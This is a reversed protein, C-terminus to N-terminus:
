TKPVNQLRHTRTPCKSGLLSDSFKPYEVSNVAGCVGCLRGNKILIAQLWPGHIDLAPLRTHEHLDFPTVLSVTRAVDVNPTCRLHPYLTAFQKSNVDPVRTDDVEYEWDSPLGLKDFVLVVGNAPDSLVRIPFFRIPRELERPTFRTTIEVPGCLSAGRFSHPTTPRPMTSSALESMPFSDFVIPEVGPSSGSAAFYTSM